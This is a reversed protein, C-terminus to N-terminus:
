VQCCFWFLWTGWVVTHVLPEYHKFHSDLFITYRGFLRGCVLFFYKKVSDSAASPMMCYYAERSLAKWKHSLFRGLLFSAWIHINPLSSLRAKIKQQTYKWSKESM